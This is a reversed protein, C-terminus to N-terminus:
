IKLFAEIARQSSEPTIGRASQIAEGATDISASVLGGQRLKGLFGTAAQEVGGAVTGKIGRTPVTQYVDDLLDAFTIQKIISDNYTSGYKRATNELNQLASLPKARANGLIRNIVEGSRLNAIDKSGLFDKGILRRVEDLSTVTDKYQTNVQNYRPFQVDLVDDIGSRLGKLLREADGTLGEANKGYTVQNDIFRKVRHLQLGDMDAGQLNNDVRNVVTKLTKHVTTLGEFDSGDFAKAIDDATKALRLQDVDVGARDLQNFFDDTAAGANVKVGALQTRAVDDIQSGATKNLKEVDKVRKMFTEGVVEQQRQMAIGTNSTEKAIAVMKKAAVTDEPSFSQMITVNKDDIGQKLLAQAPKDAVVKGNEIKMGATAKNRLKETIAKPPEPLPSFTDDINSATTKLLADDVTDAQSLLTALEEKRNTKAQFGGGISGVVGGVAGGIVGGLAGQKAIEYATGLVGKEEKIGTALGSVGGFVTGSAAGTKVGQKAGEFVGRGITTSSTLKPVTVASLRGTVAGKGGFQGASAITGFTKIASAVIDRNSKGGTGIAGIARGAEDNSAAQQELAMELRTTDKGQAKNEKITLVLKNQIQIGSEYAKELGATTTESSGTFLKRLGGAFKSENSGISAGAAVGLDNVGTFRAAGGLFGKPDISTDLKTQQQINQQRRQPIATELKGVYSQFGSDGLVARKEALQGAIKQMQEQTLAM